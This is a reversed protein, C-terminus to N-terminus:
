RRWVEGHGDFIHEPIVGRREWCGNSECCHETCKGGHVEEEGDLFTCSKADRKDNSSDTRM